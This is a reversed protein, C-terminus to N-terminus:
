IDFSAGCGCNATSNPNSVKFFSGGLEEVFDIEANQIFELSNPDTALYIKGNEENTIKIDDPSINDDLSFKYQFGSCGGGIITIRLFKNPNGKGTTIADIRNKANNTLSIKTM